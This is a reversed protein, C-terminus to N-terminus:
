KGICFQSFITSLTDEQVNEGYLESLQSIAQQLHFSVIESHSELGESDILVYAKELFHAMSTLLSEQRQNIYFQSDNMNTKTLLSHLNEELISLSSDQHCSIQIANNKWISPIKFNQPSIKEILDMKNFVILFPINLGAIKDIINKIYDMKLNSVDHIILALDANSLTEYTKEIGIKEIANQPTARLGATDIFTIPINSITLSIDITDRTTGEIESVIARDEGLLKNLLSSKGANPEGVIAVKYGLSMSQSQKAQKILLRTKQLVTSLLSSDQPTWEEIDEESYDINVEIKAILSLIDKKITQLHNGLNKKLSSLALITGQTSKSSILDHISEAQILDIKQNFFARQTFEGREAILAGKELLLNIIQQFIVCGGHCSIEVMDEGTFSKPAKFISVLVQDIYQNNQPNFIYGFLISHGLAEKINKKSQFIKEMIDFTNKGSLRILALPAKGIPTALAVITTDKLLSM